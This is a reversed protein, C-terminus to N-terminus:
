SSTVVEWTTGNHFNLKNTTTNYITMGPRGTLNDRQATSLRPFVFYADAAGGGVDVSGTVAVAVPNSGTVDLTASLGLFSRKGLAIGGNSGTMSLGFGWNGDVSGTIAQDATGEKAWGIEFAGRTGAYIFSFAASENTEYVWKPGGSFNANYWANSAIYQNGGLHFYLGENAGKLQLISGSSENKGSPSTSISVARTVDLSLIDDNDLPTLSFASEAGSITGQEQYLGKEADYKIKISM